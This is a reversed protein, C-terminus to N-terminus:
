EFILSFGPALLPSYIELSTEGFSNCLRLCVEVSAMQTGASRCVVPQVLLSGWLASTSPAWLLLCWGCHSGRVSTFPFVFSRSLPRRRMRTPFSLFLLCHCGSFNNPPGCLPMASSALSPPARHALSGSASPHPRILARPPPSHARVSATQAGGVESVTRDCNLSSIPIKHFPILARGGGGFRSGSSPFPGLTSLRRAM